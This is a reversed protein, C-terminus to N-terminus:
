DVFSSNPALTVARAVAVTEDTMLKSLDDKPMALFQARWARIGASAALAIANDPSAATLKAFCAAGAQADDLRRSDRWSMYLLDCLYPTPEDPLATQLKLWARGPAHLPGSANGLQAALELAARALADTDPVGAPAVITTTWRAGNTRPDTITARLTFRGNSEQVTGSVVLGGEGVSLNEFAPLLHSLRAGVMRVDDDLVPEGTLNDFPGVSVRPMDPISAVVLPPQPWLFRVVVVTLGVGVLTFALGVIANTLFRPVKRRRKIADATPAPETDTKPAPSEGRDIESFEPVYRGLPLRIEVDATGAGSVYFQEILTRLRRAQVRVIPDSQPDFDAPRGFVDVAISYAKISSEDGSITKEVVYRLLEALQPSRSIGPWGLLEDLAARVREPSPGPEPM